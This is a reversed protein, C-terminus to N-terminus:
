ESTHRQLGYHDALATLGDRLRPLRGSAWNDFCCVDVVIEALEGGLLDIAATMRRRAALQTDTFDQRGAARSIRAGDAGIVSPAAAAFHWDRRFRLGAEHQRDIISGKDLYWDLRCEHKVRKGTIGADMTERTVLEGHRAREPTGHDVSPLVIRHAKKARGRV